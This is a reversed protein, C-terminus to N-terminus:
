QQPTVRVSLGEPGRDTSIYGDAILLYLGPSVVVDIRSQKKDCSIDDNCATLATYGCQKEAGSEPGVLALVTDFLTTEHDTLAV